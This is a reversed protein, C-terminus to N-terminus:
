KGKEKHEEISHPGFELEMEREDCKSCVFEQCGYCYDEDT